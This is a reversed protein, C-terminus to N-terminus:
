NDRKYPAVIWNVAFFTTVAYILGLAGCKVASYIISGLMNFFTRFIYSGTLMYRGILMAFIDSALTIGNSLLVAGFGMAAQGAFLLAVAAAAIIAIITRSRSYKKSGGLVLIVAALLTWCIAMAILPVAAVAGYILYSLLNNVAIGSNFTILWIVTRVLYNLAMILIALLSTVAPAIFIVGLFRTKIKFLTLVGYLLLAAVTVLLLLENLISGLAGIVNALYVCQASYIYDSFGLVQVFVILNSIGSITSGLLDLLAFGLVAFAAFICLLGGVSFRKKPKLVIETSMVDETQFLDKIWEIM